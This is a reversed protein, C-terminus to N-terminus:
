IQSGDVPKFVLVPDVTIDVGAVFISYVTTALSPHPVAGTVSLTPTVIFGNGATFKVASLRDPHEGNHTINVL